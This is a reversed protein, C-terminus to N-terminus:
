RTFRYAGLVAGEAAAREAGAVGAPLEIAVSAARVGLAHRAGRAALLRVDAETLPGGNGLGVLVVRAPKLLGNTPFDCIQDRKGTFEERKLTKAVVPGLKKSLAALTSGRPNAGEQVGIVSVDVAVSLPDSSSLSTKIPMLAGCLARHGRAARM